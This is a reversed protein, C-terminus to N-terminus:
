INLERRLVEFYTEDGIEIHVKDENANFSINRVFIADSFSLDKLNEKKIANEGYQSVKCSAGYFWEAYRGAILLSRKAKKELEFKDIYLIDGIHPLCPLSIESSVDDDMYNNESHIHIVAKISM